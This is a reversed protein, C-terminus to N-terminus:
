GELAAESMQVYLNAFKKILDRQEYVAASRRFFNEMRGTELGVGIVMIGRRELATISESLAVPMGKYGYPWGDSIVILFKQEDFRKALTEGAVHLADPMYTLGGFKLGGIRARVRRSYAETADKLVYLQDSFAYFSWSTPDKLLEKAAEAVCIALARGYEGKVRMSASADLVISWAYSSKLYEDRKFVDQRPQGTSMMQVVAPLDMEGFVKGADEDLADQAACLRNLLRRITGRIMEKARLYTTYDENPFTVSKFRTWAVADELKSLMRQERAEQTFWTNFAQSAEANAEKRWCSEISDESPITGGLTELSKKFIQEIEFESLMSNHSFITCSGTHETYQLSPAELMPGFDELTQNVENTTNTMAEGFETSEMALAMMVEEKLAGLKDALQNVTKEEESDLTGKVTGINLKSLLATMILTAPNFITDVPRIKSYALSNAYAMDALKDPYWATLYSNVYVDNVLSNTFRGLISCHKAPAIKEPNVPMLTHTTLHYVCARFLRGVKAKGEDDAAFKYGLFTITKEETEENVTVVPLPVTVNFGAKNQTLTPQNLKTEISIGTKMNDKQLSISWAYDLFGM